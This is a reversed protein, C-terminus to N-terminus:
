FAEIRVIDKQERGMSGSVDMMYLLGRGLVRAEASGRATDNTTVSPRSSRNIPDFAGSAITRAASRPLTRRFHRLSQPRESIGSYRGGEVLLEDKGRPEIRPLALEEGLMAALEELEVEAELVHEGAQEGAEGGHGEEGSQGEVDRGRGRERAWSRGRPQRLPLAPARHLPDPDISVKNGQKGIM